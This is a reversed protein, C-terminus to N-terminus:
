RRREGPRSCPRFAMPEEADYFAHCSVHLVRNNPAHQCLHSPTAQANVLAERGFKAAVLQAEIELASLKKREMGAPPRKGAWAVAFMGEKGTNSRNMLRRGIALSPLYHVPMLALLPQRNLYPLPLAHLPLLHLFGHAILTIRAAREIIRQIEEPFLIKTLRQWAPSLQQEPDSPRRWIDEELLELYDILHENGIPLQLSAVSKKGSELCFLYTRRDHVYWELFVCGDPQINTFTLIEELRPPKGRKLEAYNAAYKEIEDYTADLRANAARLAIERDVGDGPESAEPQNACQQRTEILKRRAEREAEILELPVNQPISNDSQCVQTLFARGKGRECAELATGYRGLDYLSQVAGSYAWAGREVEQRQSELEGTRGLVDTAQMAKLCVDAMMEVHSDSDYGSQQTVLAEYLHASSQRCAEPMFEPKQIEIAQYYLEIAKKLNEERQEPFLNALDWYASGLNHQFHSFNQPHLHPVVLSIAERYIDIAKEINQKRSGIELNQYVIGLKNLIGAILLGEGTKRLVALFSELERIKKLPEDANGPVKADSPVDIVYYSFKTAPLAAFAEDIGRKRCDDLVERHLQIRSNNGPSSQSSQLTEELIRDVEASLLQDKYLELLQKSESWNGANIFRSLLEPLSAPPLLAFALEINTERCNRILDRNAKVQAFAREDSAYTHLLQEFAKNAISDSLISFNAQVYRKKPLWEATNLLGLVVKMVKKFEKVEQIRESFASEVGVERCRTLLRRQDSLVSFATTDGDAQVKHMMSKLLADSETSLLTESNDTVLRHSESWSETKALKILLDHLDQQAQVFELFVADINENRCRELVRRCENVTAIIESNNAYNKLLQDFMGDTETGMLAPNRQLISKRIKWGGANIFSALANVLPDELEAFQETFTSIAEVLEKAEQLRPHQWGPWSRM